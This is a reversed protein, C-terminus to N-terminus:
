ASAYLGIRSYRLGQQAEDRGPLGTSQMLLWPPYTECNSFWIGEMAGGRAVRLAEAIVRCARFGRRM